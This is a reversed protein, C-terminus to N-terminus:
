SIRTIQNQKVYTIQEKRFHRVTRRFSNSEAIETHLLTLVVVLGLMIKRDM